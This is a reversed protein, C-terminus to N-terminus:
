ERRKEIAEAAEWNEKEILVVESLLESFTREAETEGGPGWDEGDIPSGLDLDVSM